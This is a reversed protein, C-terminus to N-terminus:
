KNSKKRKEDPSPNNQKFVRLQEKALEAAYGAKAAEARQKYKEDETLVKDQKNGGTSIKKWKKADPGSLSNYISAATNYFDVSNSAVKGVSGAFRAATDIASIASDVKSRGKPYRQNSIMMLNNEVQFRDIASRLEDTTFLDRHAVVQKPDKAYEKKLAERVAADEKAKAKAARAKAAGEQMKKKQASSLSRKGSSSKQKGDDTKNKGKGGNSYAARDDKDGFLHRYWKMGLRGYHELSNGGFDDMFAESFGAGMATHALQTTKEDM